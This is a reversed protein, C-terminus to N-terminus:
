KILLQTLAESSIMTPTPLTSHMLLDVSSSQHKQSGFYEKWTKITGPTRVPYFRIEVAVTPDNPILKQQGKHDNTELCLPAPKREIQDNNRIRHRQIIRYFGSEPPPAVVKLPNSFESPNRVRELTKNNGHIHYKGLLTFLQRGARDTYVMMEPSLSFPLQLFRPLQDVPHLKSPDVVNSRNPQKLQMNYHVMKNLLGYPDINRATTEKNTPLTPIPTRTDFLKMESESTPIHIIRPPTAVSSSPAFTHIIPSPTEFTQFAWPRTPKPTLRPKEFKKFTTGQKLQDEERSPPYHRSVISDKFFYSPIPKMTPRPKKKWRTGPNLEVPTVSRNFFFWYSVDEVSASISDREHPPPYTQNEELRKNIDRVFSDLSFVDIFGEPRYRKPMMRIRMFRTTADPFYGMRKAFDHLNEDPPDFNTYYTFYEKNWYQSLYYMARTTKSRPDHLNKTTIAPQYTRFTHNIPQMYYSMMPLNWNNIWYHKAATSPKTQNRTSRTEDEVMKTVIEPRLTYFRRTWQRMTTGLPTNPFLSRLSTRPRTNIVLPKRNTTTTTTAAKTSSIPKIVTFYKSYTYKRPTYDGTFVPSKSLRTLYAYPDFTSEPRKKRLLYTYGEEFESSGHESCRRQRKGNQFDHDSQSAILQENFKSAEYSNKDGLVATPFVHIDRNRNIKIPTIKENNNIAAQRAITTQRNSIEQTLPSGGPTYYKRVKVSHTYREPTYVFRRYYTDKQYPKKSWVRTQRETGNLKSDNRGFTTYIAYEASFNFDSRDLNWTQKGKLTTHSRNSRIKLGTLNKGLIKSISKKIFKLPKKGFLRIFLPLKITTPIESAYEYNNEANKTSHEENINTDGSVISFM